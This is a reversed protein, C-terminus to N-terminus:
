EWTMWDDEDTPLTVGMGQALGAEEEEINESNDEKVRVYTKNTAVNKNVNTKEDILGSETFIMRTRLNWQKVPEFTTCQIINLAAKTCFHEILGGKQWPVHFAQDMM